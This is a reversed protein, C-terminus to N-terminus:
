DERHDAIVRLLDGVQGDDLWGRVKTGPDQSVGPFFVIEGDRDLPALEWYGEGRKNGYSGRHRIVSAGYGNLFTFAVAIGGPMDFVEYRGREPVHFPVAELVMIEGRERADCRAVTPLRGPSGAAGM